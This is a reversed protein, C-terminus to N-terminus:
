KHILFTLGIPQAFLWATTAALTIYVNVVCISLKAIFKRKCIEM